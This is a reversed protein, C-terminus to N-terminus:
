IGSIKQYLYDKEKEGNLKKERKSSLRENVLRRIENFIVLKEPWQKL